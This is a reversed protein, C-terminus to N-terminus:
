IWMDLGRHKVSLRWAHTGRSRSMSARSGRSVGSCAGPDTESPQASRRTEKSMEAVGDKHQFIQLFIQESM